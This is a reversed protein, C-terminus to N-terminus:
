IFSYFIGVDIDLVIVEFGCNWCCNFYEELLIEIGFIGVEVEMEVLVVIGEFVFCNIFLGDINFYYIVFCYEDVIWFIDDVFNIM